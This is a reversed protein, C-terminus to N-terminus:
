GVQWFSFETASRNTMLDDFPESSSDNKSLSLKWSSIRPNQRQQWLSQSPEAPHRQTRKRWYLYGAVGASLAFLFSETMLYYSSQQKKLESAEFHDISSVANRVERLASDIRVVSETLKSQCSELDPFAEPHISDRVYSLTQKAQALHERAKSVYENVAAKGDISIKSAALRASTSEVLELIAFTSNELSSIASMIYANVADVSYRHQELWRGTESARAAEALLRESTTLSANPMRYAKVAKGAWDTMRDAAEQMSLVYVDATWGPAWYWWAVGIHAGNSSLSVSRPEEQPLLNNKHAKASMYGLAYAGLLKGSKDRLHLNGDALMTCVAEGDDAIWVPSVYWDRHVPITQFRLVSGKEDLVLLTQNRLVTVVHKPKSSVHFGMLGELDRTWRTNGASDFVRLTTTELYTPVHPPDPVGCAAVFDSENSM